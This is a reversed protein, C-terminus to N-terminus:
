PQFNMLVKLYNFPFTIFHGTSGVCVCVCEVGGERRVQVALALQPLSLQGRIHHVLDALISYALSRVTERTTWGAGILLNEDFLQDICSVFRTRLDTALIHRAAILLERRLHAVEQPCNHLLAILGQVINHAYTNM